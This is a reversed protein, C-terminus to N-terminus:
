IGEEWILSQNDEPSEDDHAATTKKDMERGTKGPSALLEISPVIKLSWLGSM